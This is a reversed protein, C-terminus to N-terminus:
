TILTSGGLEDWYSCSTLSLIGQLTGLLRQLVQNVLIFWVKGITFSYGEGTILKPGGYGGAGM